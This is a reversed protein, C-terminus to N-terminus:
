TEKEAPYSFSSKEVGKENFIMSAKNFVDQFNESSNKCKVVLVNFKNNWVLMVESKYRALEQLHLLKTANLM